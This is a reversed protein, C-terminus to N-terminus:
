NKHERESIITIGPFSDKYAIAGNNHDFHWHTFVLYKVPKKTVSRILRIDERAMSPLYCADVVMVADNGIIVGTNGHPWEDTADDHIIAYVDKAVREMSAGNSKAPVPPQSYIISICLSGMLLFFGKKMNSM